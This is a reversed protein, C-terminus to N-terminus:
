HRALKAVRASRDKSPHKPVCHGSRTENEEAREAGATRAVVNLAAGIKVALTAVDLGVFDELAALVSDGSGRGFFARRVRCIAARGEDREAIQM